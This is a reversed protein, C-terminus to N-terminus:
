LVEDLFQQGTATKSKYEGLEDLYVSLAAKVIHMMYVEGDMEKGIKCAVELAKHSKETFDVPVLIRKYM